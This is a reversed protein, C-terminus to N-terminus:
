NEVHVEVTALDSAFGPTAFRPSSTGSSTAGGLKQAVYSGDGLVQLRGGDRRGNGGMARRADNIAGAALHITTGTEASFDVVVVQAQEKGLGQADYGRILAPSNSGGGTVDVRLADISTGTERLARDRVWRAAQQIFSPQQALEAKDSLADAIGAWPLPWQMTLNTLMGANALLAVDSRLQADGVEASAAASAPAAVIMSGTSLALLVAINTVTRELTMIDIPAQWM